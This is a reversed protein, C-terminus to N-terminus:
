IGTKMGFEKVMWHAPHDEDNICNPLAGHIRKYEGVAAVTAQKRQTATSGPFRTVTGDPEIRFTGAKRVHVGDELFKWVVGTIAGDYQERGHEYMYKKGNKVFVNSPGLDGCGLSKTIHELAYGSLANYSYGM